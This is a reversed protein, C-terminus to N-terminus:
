YNRGVLVIIWGVDGCHAFGGIGGDLDEVGFVAVEVEGKGGVLLQLGAGM